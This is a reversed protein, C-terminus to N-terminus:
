SRSSRTLMRDLDDVFAAAPLIDWPGTLTDELIKLARTLM